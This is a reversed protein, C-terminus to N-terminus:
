TIRRMADQACFEVLSAVFATESIIMRAKKKRRRGPSYISVFESDV